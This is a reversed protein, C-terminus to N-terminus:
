ASRRRQNPRKERSLLWERGSEKRIYIRGGIMVYPLGDPLSRYRKITRPVVNLKEAFVAEPLYEDLFESANDM